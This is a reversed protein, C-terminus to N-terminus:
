NPRLVDASTAGAGGIALVVDYTIGDLYNSLHALADFEGEVLIASTKNKAAKGLSGMFNALGLFGIDPELDDRIFVEDKITSNANLFDSRLKFRSIESPTKHYFYVLAGINKPILVDKTYEYVEKSLQIKTNVLASPALVGIPLNKFKSSDIGRRELYTVCKQAFTYKQSKRDESAEQLIKNCAYAFENNVLHRTEM